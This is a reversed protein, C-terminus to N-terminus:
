LLFVIYKNFVGDTINGYMSRSLLITASYAMIVCIVDDDEGGSDINLTSDLVQLEVNSHYFLVKKENKTM